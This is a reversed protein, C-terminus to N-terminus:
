LSRTGGIFTHGVGRKYKLCPDIAVEKMKDYNDKPISTTVHKVNRDM